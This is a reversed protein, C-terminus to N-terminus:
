AEVKRDKQSKRKNVFYYCVFGLAGGITNLIVDDIDCCGVKSFLQVVEVAVSFELTFLIVAIPGVKGKSLTPLFFGFPMFAVINGLLNLVVHSLGITRYYTLYRNIEHFPIFNYRYNTSMHERFGEAFFLFYILLLIYAIYAVGYGIKNKQKM